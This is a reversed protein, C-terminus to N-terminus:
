ARLAAAVSTRAAWGAPLLAGLVALVVGSAALAVLEAPRFADLVSTPLGSQAADGMAPMVTSHLATGAPVALLGAALGVLVTSVVVMTRVQRPTMGLSKLVGLATVACLATALLAILGTM